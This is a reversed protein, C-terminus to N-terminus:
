HKAGSVKEIGDFEQTSAGAHGRGKTCLECCLAFNGLKLAARAARFYAQM